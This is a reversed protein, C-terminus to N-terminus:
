NILDVAKKKNACNLTWPKFHSRALCASTATCLRVLLQSCLRSWQKLHSNVQGVCFLLSRLENNWIHTCWVCLCMLRWWSDWPFTPPSGSVWPAWCVCVFFMGSLRRRKRKNLAIWLEHNLIHTCWVCLCMLRLDMGFHLGVDASKCGM